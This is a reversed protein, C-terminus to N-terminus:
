KESGRNKGLVHNVTRVVWGKTAAWEIRRPEEIRSLYLVLCFVWLCIFVVAVALVWQVTKRFAQVPLQEALNGSLNEVALETFTSQCFPAVLNAIELHIYQRIEVPEGDRNEVIGAAPLRGNRYRIESVM